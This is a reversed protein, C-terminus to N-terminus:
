FFIANAFLLKGNEWFSRFLPDDALMVVKGNGIEKVGFLVGDRLRKRTEAGVFGSLYNDKKLVGVNWGGDELYEYIKSDQKLTYYTGPFGFALPHTTDMDVKYIAGPIAVKVNERQRNGYPKLKTYDDDKDLLHDDEGKKLKIGWDLTAVQGLADQMAILKGGGQIWDKLRAALEKVALYRYSGDPLILVDVDKWSVQDMMKEDIVTVPYGIQQEFFHWVEGAALSSVGDGMVLVVRQPRIYRVKQSGFDVGKDVFGTSVADLGVGCNKALSLIIDDFRDGSTENGARTIILTGAPFSKGGAIFSAEAYRVHIKRKLLAALFKVDKISNWRGLYAYSHGNKVTLYNNVPMELSDRAATVPLRLAYTPLGYAYPLSWATIDYTISDSLHSDPEFLVKLLNSRPQMASIVLDEKEISFNETQGNLYNYGQAKTTAAGYGFRIDNRALLAALSGLKEPNGGSKVVYSKYPGDPNHLADSFYQTYDNLLQSAQQSAAEITSLGTTLHHDIRQALTLTDGDEKLAVIGGRPGGGQEYTMGIAGNYTPYTDGYSPYFMDFEEKTFYLWGHEDFYKANNKGILMQMSRQWPKIIEHFPEAAPAFYYPADIEQEHFDVHVQPMWRNYLAVRLQSEVQTQWAWDRNLDFYYHNSRGGPWPENHERAYLVPDPQIAHVQNYFNVYRERGDPNLCPDILVITNELWQQQTTNQKDALKYLTVMAAESSVAENGHVNYSLWVIVPDNKAVQGDGNSLQVNHKRIQELKGFNGPSTIAALMLTRGEYTTGYAILQMNPTVAAVAKFYDLVKYYPTFRSGLPYGLFQEPSPLSQAITQQTLLCCIVLRLLLRYM